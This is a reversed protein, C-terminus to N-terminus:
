SKRASEVEFGPTRDLLLGSAAEFLTGRTTSTLGTPKVVKDLLVEIFPKQASKIVYAFTLVNAAHSYSWGGALFPELYLPDSTGYDNMAQRVRSRWGDHQEASEFSELLTPALGGFKLNPDKHEWYIDGASSLLAYHHCLSRAKIAQAILALGCAP